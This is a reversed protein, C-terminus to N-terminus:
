PGSRAPVRFLSPGAGTRRGSALSATRGLRAAALALRAEARIRAQMATWSDLAGSYTKVINYVNTARTWENRSLGGMWRYNGLPADIYAARAHLHAAAFHCWAEYDQTAKLGDSFLPAPIASARVLVASTALINGAVLLEGLFSTRRPLRKRVFGDGELLRNRGLCYQPHWAIDPRFVSALGRLVALKLGSWQDDGDCFAIYESGALAAIGANRAAAADGDAQRVLTISDSDALSRAVDWTGDTSGNEVIALRDGAFMQPAISRVTARLTDANNHAPVVIGISPADAPGVQPLGFRWEMQPWAGACWRVLALYLAYNM